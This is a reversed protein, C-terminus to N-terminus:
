HYYDDESKKPVVKLAKDTIDKFRKRQGCICSDTKIEFFGTDFGESRCMAWCVSNKVDVETM